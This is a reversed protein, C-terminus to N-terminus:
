VYIADREIRSKLFSNMRERYRVIDVKRHLLNELEQQIGVLTFLDPRTLEVVVDVDSEAQLDDRAASGFIGLRLIGMAEQRARLYKSLAELIHNRTM